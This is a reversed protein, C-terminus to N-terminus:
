TLILERHPTHAFKSGTIGWILQDLPKPRKKRFDVGTNGKLFVPLEPVTHIAPLFVPIVPCNRRVFERLFAEVELNQWPGIGDKGIFVAASKINPIQDEITRM